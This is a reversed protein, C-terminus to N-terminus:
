PGLLEGIAETAADLQSDSPGVYTQLTALGHHGFLKAITIPSTGAEQLLRGTTHRLQHTTFRKIGARRALKDWIERVGDPGLRRTPRNFDYTVWLWEVDDKRVALYDEVYQRAIVPIRLVKDSGGKQIVLAHE